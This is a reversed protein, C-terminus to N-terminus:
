RNTTRRRALAVLGAGVLLATSPEPTFGRIEGGPHTQTHINLYAFGQELGDGLAAEAGAATGGHATVFAPNFSSALTLDFVNSYAGSTVGLPFGPFTPTVTAVGATPTAASPSVCCHIHAATDPGELGSFIVDVSLSHAVDDYTISASGTAPSANAPFESPGDLTVHWTVSNAFATAPLGLVLGVVVLLLKV